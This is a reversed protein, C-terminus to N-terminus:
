RSLGNLFYYMYRIYPYDGDEIDVSELEMLSVWISFWTESLLCLRLVFLRVFFCMRTWASEGCNVQFNIYKWCVCYPFWNLIFTGFVVTFKVFLSWTLSFRGFLCHHPPSLFFPHFYSVQSGHSSEGEREIERGRDTVSIPFLSPILVLPLRELGLGLLFTLASLRIHGQDKRCLQATGRDPWCRDVRNLDM